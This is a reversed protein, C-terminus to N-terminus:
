TCPIESNILGATLLAYWRVREKVIPPTPAKRNIIDSALGVVESNVVVIGAIHYPVKNKL